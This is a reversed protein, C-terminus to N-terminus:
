YIRMCWLRLKGPGDSRWDQLRFLLLVSILRLLRVM